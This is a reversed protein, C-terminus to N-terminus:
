FAAAFTTNKFVTKSIYLTQNISALVASPESVGKINFYKNAQSPSFEGNLENIQNADFFLLKKDLNQALLNLAQEDKKAEFSAIANIDVMSIENNDIFKTFDSFLEDYSTGTNLGVGIAVFKIKIILVNEYKSNKIPNEFPTIVVSPINFDVKDLDNPYNFYNINNYQLGEAKLIDHIVRYTIINIGTNNILANSIRSLENINQISYGSNVAFLDFAFVNLSDTATTIFSTINSNVKTLDEALRNAGGIHGSLLPIVQTLSLNIVLIAPDTTKSNLLPAIKRIVIGTAAFWIIADSEQWAQNIIDDIKLYKLFRVGNIDNTNINKNYIAINLSADVLFLDKVLERSAKIGPDNVTIISIKKM